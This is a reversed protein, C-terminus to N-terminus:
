ITWLIIISWIIILQFLIARNKNQWKKIWLIKCKREFGIIKGYNLRGFDLYYFFIFILIWRFFKNILTFEILWIEDEYKIKRRKKWIRIISTWWQTLLLHGGIQFWIGWYHGICGCANHFTEGTSNPLIWAIHIWHFRYYFYKQSIKKSEKKHFSFKFFFGFKNNWVWLSNSSSYSYLELAQWHIIFDVVKVVVM